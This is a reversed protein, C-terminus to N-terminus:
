LPGRADIIKWKGNVKGLSLMDREQSGDGFKMILTVTKSSDSGSVNQVEVGKLGNKANMKAQTQQLAMKLKDPGLMQFQGGLLSIADDMNGQQIDTYFREPLEHTPDGLSFINGLWSFLGGSEGTSENPQNSNQSGSASGANALAESLQTQIVLQGAADPLYWGQSGKKMVVVQNLASDLNPLNQKVQSQLAWEPLGVWRLQIRAFALDPPVNFNAPFKLSPSNAEIKKASVISVGNAVCLHGNRIFEPANPGYSYKLNFGYFTTVVQPPTYIGAKVLVDLWQRTGADYTNVLVPNLSYNFNSLCVNNMLQSRNQELWQQSASKIVADSPGATMGMVFLSIGAVLAVTLVSGVIMWFNRGGKSNHITKRSAHNSPAPQALNTSTTAALKPLPSGCNDCFVADAAETRVGCHTCFKLM